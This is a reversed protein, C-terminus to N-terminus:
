IYVFAVISVVVIPSTYDKGDNSVEEMSTYISSLSNILSVNDEKVANMRIIEVKYSM